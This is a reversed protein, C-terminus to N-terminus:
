GRIAPFLPKQPNAGKGRQRPFLPAYYSYDLLKVNQEELTQRVILRIENSANFFEASEIKANVTIKTGPQSM